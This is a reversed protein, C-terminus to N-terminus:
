SATARSPSLTLEPIGLAARFESIDKHSLNLLLMALIRVPDKQHKLLDRVFSAKTPFGTTLSTELTLWVRLDIENAAKQMAAEITSVITKDDLKYPACLVESSALQAYFSCVQNSIESLTKINM